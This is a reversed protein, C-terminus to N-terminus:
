VRGVGVAVVGIHLVIWHCVRKVGLLVDRGAARSSRYVFYGRPAIPRAGNSAFM